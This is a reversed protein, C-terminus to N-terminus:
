GLETLKIVFMDDDILSFIVKKLRKMKKNNKKVFMFVLTHIKM